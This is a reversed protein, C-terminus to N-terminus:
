AVRGQPRLTREIGETLGVQAHWGIERGIREPSFWASDLLRSVAASNLPSALQLCSGLLDGMQGATRLLRRPIQWRRPPMGLAARIQDYIQRGSYAIPDAVIYTQGNARPDTAVQRIASVVDDVHVLSRRNGTEPLPPFWGARIGDIMRALNGRGGRGYVMALRLNVVHLGHKAGAELVAHEAARKAQGYASDPEGPWSEDICAQGSEAMAKVSSLFIFSRVGKAIAALLINQTGQFNIQWHRESQLGAAEHAFGACHIVTSIDTCAQELSRVDDLDGVVAHPYLGAIRVLARDEPRLLHRGIFGNAGTM